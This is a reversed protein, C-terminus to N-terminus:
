KLSIRLIWPQFLIFGLTTETNRMIAFVLSNCVFATVYNQFLEFLFRRSVSECFDM